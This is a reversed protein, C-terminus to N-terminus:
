RSGTPADATPPPPAPLVQEARESELLIAILALRQRPLLVDALTRWHARAWEDLLSSRALLTTLSPPGDGEALRAAHQDALATDDNPGPRATM